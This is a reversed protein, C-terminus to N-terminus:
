DVEWTWYHAVTRLRALALVAAGPWLSQNPFPRTAWPLVSRTRRPSKSFCYLHEGEAPIVLAIPHKGAAQM